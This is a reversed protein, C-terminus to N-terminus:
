RNATPDAHTRVTHTAIHVERLFLALGITLSLTSGTFLVGQLMRLSVDFLEQVFLTGIVTCVLLASLTSWTISLSALRRRHELNGLELQLLPDDRLEPPLPQEKLRRGRDIIRALRGAMVNLM